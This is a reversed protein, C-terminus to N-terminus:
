QALNHTELSPLSAREGKKNQRSDRVFTSKWRLAEASNNVLAYRYTPQEGIYVLPLKISDVRKGHQDVLFFVAEFTTARLEISKRHPKSSHYDFELRTRM